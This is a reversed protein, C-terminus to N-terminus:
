IHIMECTFINNYKINCSTDYKCDIDTWSDEGGTSVSHKVSIAQEQNSFMYLYRHM